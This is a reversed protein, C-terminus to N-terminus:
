RDWLTAFFLVRAAYLLICVCVVLACGCGILATIGLAKEGASREGSTKRAAMVEEEEAERARRGRAAAPQVSRAGRALHVGVALVGACTGHRLIM